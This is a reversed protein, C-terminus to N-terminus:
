KIEDFGSQGGYDVHFQISALIKAENITSICDVDQGELWIYIDAKVKESTEISFLRKNQTFAGLTKITVNHEIPDAEAWSSSNQLILHDNDILTNSGDISPTEIYQASSSIHKDCNPEYIFFEPTGITEGTKADIHTIRFGIRLASEAGHGVDNHMINESDWEPKGIVYTGYGNEGENVEVAEALSVNCATDTRFYVSGIVYYGDGGSKNGNKEDSLEKYGQMRGDYGYSIAMFKQRKDSWTVPKLPYDGSVIDVFDIRQGWKEDPADIEKSIEIGSQANIYMSM